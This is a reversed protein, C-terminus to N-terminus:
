VDWKVSQRVFSSFCWSSHLLLFNAYIHLGLTHLQLRVSDQNQGATSLLTIFVNYLALIWNVHCNTFFVNIVVSKQLWLLAGAVTYTVRWILALVLNKSARELFSSSHYIHFRVFIIIDTNRAATMFSCSSVNVNSCWDSLITFLRTTSEAEDAVVVLCQRPRHAPHTRHMLTIITWNVAPQRTCHLENPQSEAILRSLRCLLGM